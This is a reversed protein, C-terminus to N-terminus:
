RDRVVPDEEGVAVRVFDDHERGIAGLDKVEALSMLRM